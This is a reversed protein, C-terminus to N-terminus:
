LETDSRRSQNKKYSGHKIAMERALSTIDQSIKELRVFIKYLLYFIIMTALYVILDAGRGIGLYFAFHSAIDPSWFIVIVAIWLFFWFIFAMRSLHKERYHNFLRALILLSFFTVVAQIWM